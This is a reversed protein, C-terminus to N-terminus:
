RSQKNIKKQQKDAADQILQELEKAKEITDTKEKLVHDEVENDSCGGLPLLVTLFLLTLHRMKTTDGDYSPNLALPKLIHRERPSQRPGDMARVGETRALALGLRSIRIM